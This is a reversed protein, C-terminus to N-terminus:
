KGFVALHAAHGDAWLGAGAFDPGDIALRAGMGRAPHVAVRADALAALWEAAVIGKQAEPVNRAGMEASLVYSPVLGERLALWIEPHGFVEFGLLRGGAIALLGVQDPVPEFARAREEARARHGAVIEHYDDTTSHAGRFCAVREVDAWLLVQDVQGRASAQAVTHKRLAPEVFTPSVDFSASTPRWRGREVCGVKIAVEQRPGVLITEVVVRNQKAGMLSSGDTVLVSVDGHNRAIVERVVGGGQETVEFTGSKAAERAVLYRPGPDGPLLVPCVELGDISRPEALWLRGLWPALSVAGPQPSPAGPGAPDSPVFSNTM